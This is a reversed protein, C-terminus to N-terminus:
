VEETFDYLETATSPINHYQEGYYRDEEILLYYVHDVGAQMGTQMAIGSMYKRGPTMNIAIETEGEFNSRTERIVTDITKYYESFETESDINEFVVEPTEGYVEVVEEATESIGGM